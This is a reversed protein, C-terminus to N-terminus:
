SSTPCTQMNVPQCHSSGLQIKNAESIGIEQHLITVLKIVLYMYHYSYHVAFFATCTSTLIARTTLVFYFQYYLGTM